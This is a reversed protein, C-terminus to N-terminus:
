RDTVCVVQLTGSQAVLKTNRVVFDWASGDGEPASWVVEMQAPLDAEGMVAKQSDCPVSVIGTFDPGILISHDVYSVDPTGPLGDDGTDGVDGAPGRPAVSFDQPQLSLDRVDSGRVTAGALDAGTLSGDKVQKSGILAAASASGAVGLLVVVLGATILRLSGAGARQAPASAWDSPGTGHQPDTVQHKRGIM